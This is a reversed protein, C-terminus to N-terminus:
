VDHKCSPVQGNCVLACHHLTWIGGQKVSFGISHTDGRLSYEERSPTQSVFVINLCVGVCVCVPLAWVLSQRSLRGCLSWQMAKIPPFLCHVKAEVARWCSSMCAARHWCYIWVTITRSVCVPVPTIVAEHLCLTVSFTICPSRSCHSAMNWM